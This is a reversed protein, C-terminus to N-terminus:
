SASHHKLDSVSNADTKDCRLAEVLEAGFLRAFESAFGGITQGAQLNDSVSNIGHKALSSPTQSSVRM